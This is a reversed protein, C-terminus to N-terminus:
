AKIGTISEQFHVPTPVGRNLVEDKFTLEKGSMALSNVGPTGCQQNSGVLKRKSNSLPRSGSMMQM